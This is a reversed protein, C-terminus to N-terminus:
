SNTIRSVSVIDITTASCHPICRVFLGTIPILSLHLPISTFRGTQSIWCCSTSSLFLVSLILSQKRSMIPKPFHKTKFGWKHLLPSNIYRIQVYFRITKLIPSRNTWIVSARFWSAWVIQSITWNAEYHVVSSQRTGNKQKISRRILASSSLAAPVIFSDTRMRAKKTYQFAAEM